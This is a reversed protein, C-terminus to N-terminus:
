QLTTDMKKNNKDPTINSTELTVLKDDAPKEHLDDFFTNKPVNSFPFIRM